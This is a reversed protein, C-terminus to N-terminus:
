SPAPRRRVVVGYVVLGAALASMGGVAACGVMRMRGERRVRLGNAAAGVMAVLLLVTIWRLGWAVQGPAFRRAAPPQRLWWTIAAVALVGLGVVTSLHQLMRFWRFGPLEDPAVLRNLSQFRVVGWGNAHTFSDWLDHVAAGLLVAFGAGMLLVVNGMRPRVLQIRAAMGPPLMQLLAPGVLSAFTVWVAMGVPLCFVVLGITSHGLDGRPRLRLVYEFDPAMSGVVFASLPLALRMRRAVWSLPLAAAAHAPTLPMRGM